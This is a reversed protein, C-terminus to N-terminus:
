KTEPENAVADIAKGTIKHQEAPSKGALKQRLVQLVLDLLADGAPPVSPKDAPSAAPSAPRMLLAPLDFHKVLYGGVASAAVLLLDIYWIGTM